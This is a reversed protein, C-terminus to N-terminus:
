FTQGGTPLLHDDGPGSGRQYAALMVPSGLTSDQRAPNKGQMRHAGLAM